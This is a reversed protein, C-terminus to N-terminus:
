TTSLMRSRRSRTTPRRSIGTSGAPTSRPMGSTTGSSPSRGPSRGSSYRCSTVPTSSVTRTHTTPTVSTQTKHIRRFASGSYVLTKTGRTIEVRVKTVDANIAGRLVLYDNEGATDQASITLMPDWLAATLWPTPPADSRLAIDWDTTDAWVYTDEVVLGQTKEELGPIQSLQHAEDDTILALTLTDTLDDLGASRGVTVTVDTGNAALTLAVSDAVGDNSGSGGGSAGVEIEGNTTRDITVGTGEMIADLTAQLTESDEESALTMSDLIDQLWTRLESATVRPSGASPFLSDILGDLQSRTRVTVSGGKPGDRFSLNDTRGKRLGRAKPPLM